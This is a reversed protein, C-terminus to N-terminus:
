GHSIFFAFIVDCSERFVRSFRPDFVREGRVDYSGFNQLSKWERRWLSGLTCYEFIGNSDLTLGCFESINMWNRKGNNYIWSIWILDHYIHPVITQEILGEWEHGELQNFCGLYPRCLSHDVECTNHTVYDHMSHMYLIVNFESNGTIRFM